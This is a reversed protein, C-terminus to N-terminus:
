TFVASVWNLTGGHHNPVPYFIATSGAPISLAANSGGNHNEGAACWVKIANPGDNMVCYKGATVEGTGISPLIVGSNLAGGVVRTYQGQIRFAGAQANSGQAIVGDFCTYGDMAQDYNIATNNTSM